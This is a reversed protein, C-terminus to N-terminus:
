DGVLLLSKVDFVRCTNPVSYVDGNRSDRGRGRVREREGERGRKLVWLTTKKEKPGVSM